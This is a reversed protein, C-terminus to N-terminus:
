LGAQRRLELAQPGAPRRTAVGAPGSDDGFLLVLLALVQPGFGELHHRRGSCTPTLGAGARRGCLADAMDSLASRHQSTDM